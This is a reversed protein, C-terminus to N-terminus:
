KNGKKQWNQCTDKIVGCFLGDKKDSWNKKCDQWEYGHITGCTHFVCQKCPKENVFVIEDTKKQQKKSM